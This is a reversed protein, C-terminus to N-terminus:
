NDFDMLNEKGPFKTTQPVILVSEGSPEMANPEELSERINFDHFKLNLHSEHSECVSGNTDSVMRLGDRCCKRVCPIEDCVSKPRCAKAIWKSARKLHFQHNDSADPPHSDIDFTNEICFSNELLVNPSKHNVPMVLLSAKSIRLNHLLSHYEVLVDDPRCEPLGAEFTVVKDSLFEGFGESLTSQNNLLCQRAFIDYSYNKDCCKKLKYINVFDSAVELHDECTFIVYRNNMIDVCSSTQSAKTVSSLIALSLQGNEVCPPWHTENNILVNHAIIGSLGSSNNMVYGESERKSKPNENSYFEEVCSYHTQPSLFNDEVVDSRVVEGERCCKKFSAVSSSISLSILLVARLLRM